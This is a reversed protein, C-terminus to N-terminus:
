FKGQLGSTDMFATALTSRAGLVVSDGDPTTEGRCHKCRPMGHGLTNLAIAAAKLVEATWEPDAAVRALLEKDVLEVNAIM